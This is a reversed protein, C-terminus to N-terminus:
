SEKLRSSEKHDVADGRPWAPWRSWAHDKSANCGGGRSVHVPCSSCRKAHLLATCDLLKCIPTNVENNVLNLKVLPGLFCNLCELLYFIKDQWKLLLLITRTLKDCRSWYKWDHRFRTLWPRQTAKTDGRSSLITLEDRCLWLNKGTQSVQIISCKDSSSM